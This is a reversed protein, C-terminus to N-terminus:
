KWFTGKDSAKQKSKWDAVANSILDSMTLTNSKHLQIIEKVTLSKLMGSEVGKNIREEVSKNHADLSKAIEALAKEDNADSAKIFDDQIKKTDEAIPRSVSGVKSSPSYYDLVKKAIQAGQSSGPIGAMEGASQLATIGGSVKAEGTKATALQKAGSIVDMGVDVVPIGSAGYQYMNTVNSIIPLNNILAPVIRSGVTKKSENEKQQRTGLTYTLASNAYSEALGAAALSALIAFAKSPDKKNVLAVKADRYLAAQNLTFRQFQLVADLVDKNAPNLLGMPTDKADSSGQTRRVLLDASEVADKNVKGAVFDAKNFKIGQEELRKRYAAYWVADATMSDYYKIGKYGMEQIPGLIRNKSKELYAPDDAVRFRQQRSAKQVGGRLEESTLMEAYHLPAEKGLMGVANIMALPQKVITGIKLGLLGQGLNRTIVRIAGPRYGKPVGGRAVVDLWGRAWKAGRNGVAKAFKSDNLIMAANHIPEEMHIYSSADAIHKSLVDLANLEIKQGHAGSIVRSKVFNQKTRTASYDGTIREVLQADDDYNTQWSWYNDVKGLSEGKTKRLTADIKPQLEDFISRGLKYFEEEQPTLKINKFIGEPVGSAILKQAGGVQQTTAYMMVREYNEPTFKTGYRHEIEKIGGPADFLKHLLGLKEETALGQAEDIPAKVAKWIPGREAENDLIQFGVDPSTFDMVGKQLAEKMVAKRSVEQKVGPVKPKPMEKDMNRATESIKSIINERKLNAADEAVRQLTEGQSVLHDMQQHLAILDKFSQESIPTTGLEGIREVKKFTKSGFDYIASPNKQLFDKLNALKEETSGAMGQFSIGHLLNEVRDRQNPPLREARDALKTIESIIDKKAQNNSEAFVRRVAEAMQGETHVNAVSSLFRGRIDPPLASKAFDALSKKMSQIGTAKDKLVQVTKQLFTKREALQKEFVSRTQIRTKLIDLEAKRKLAEMEGKAVNKVEGVAESVMESAERKALRTADALERKTMDAADRSITDLASEPAKAIRETLQVYTPDTRALVERALDQKSKPTVKPAIPAEGEVKPAKPALEPPKPEPVDIRHPDAELFDKVYQKEAAILEDKTVPPKRIPEVKPLEVKPTERSVNPLETKPLETSKLSGKDFVVTQSDEFYKTLNNVRKGSDLNVVVGDYGESKIADQLAQAEKAIDGEWPLPQGEVEAHLMPNLPDPLKEGHKQFYDIKFNDWDSDSNLVLPKKLDHTFTEVKGGGQAFKEAVAKDKTLYAADGLVNTTGGGVEPIGGVYRTKSTLSPTGRYLLNDQKPLETPISEIAREMPSGPPPPPPPPFKGAVARLIEEKEVDTLLRGAKKEAAGIAKGVAKNGAEGLGFDFNLAELGGALLAAPAVMGLRVIKGGFSNPDQGTLALQKKALSDALQTADSLTKNMPSVAEDGLLQRELFTKPQATGTAGGASLGMAATTRAPFQVFAEKLVSPVFAAMSTLKQGVGGQAASSMMQTTQPFISQTVRQVYADQAVGPGPTAQQAQALDAKSALTAPLKPAVTQQAVATQAPTIGQGVPFSMSPAPTVAKQIVPAVAKVAAQSAAAMVGGPSALDVLKTLTTGGQSLPKSLQSSIYNAGTTLASKAGTALNSLTQLFAM